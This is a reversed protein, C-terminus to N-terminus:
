DEDEAHFHIVAQVKGALGPPVAVARTKNRNRISYRIRRRELARLVGTEASKEMNTWTTSMPANITVSFSKKPM